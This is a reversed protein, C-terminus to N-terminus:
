NKSSLWDCYSNWYDKQSLTQVIGTLVFAGKLFELLNKFFFLLNREGKEFQPVQYFNKLSGSLLCTQCLSLFFTGPNSIRFFLFFFYM